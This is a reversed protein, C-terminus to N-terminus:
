ITVLPWEMGYPQNTAPNISRAGTSGYCSGLVNACVIFHDTPDLVYGEGFLGSWWDDVRSNATLVHFVWIVNNRAANLTGYTHYGITIGTPFEYGSELTFKEKSQFFQLGPIELPITYDAKM